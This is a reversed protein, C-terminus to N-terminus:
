VIRGDRMTIIRKAASAVDTSHTAIIMTLNHAARIDNLLALIKETNASDLNGTPEDAFLISPNNILARAIAIRQQEGGSLEMPKHEARHEMGVTLLREAAKKRADGFSEGAILLPMMVNEIATFEPLLHHFQFVFGIHTNRVSSLEQPTIDRSKYTTKDFTYLIEGSDPADLTGLIHLFTSKGAGSPGVLALFDGNAIQLSVGRLVPTDQQTLLSFSKTVNTATISTM